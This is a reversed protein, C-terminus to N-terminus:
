SRGIRAEAALLALSSRLARTAYAFKHENSDRLMAAMFCQQRGRNSGEGPGAPKLELRGLRLVSRVRRAGTMDTRMNKDGGRM